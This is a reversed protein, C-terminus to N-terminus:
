RSFGKGPSDKFSWIRAMESQPSPTTPEQKVVPEEIELTQNTILSQREKWVEFPVFTPSNIVKELRQLTTEGAKLRPDGSKSPGYASKSLPTSEFSDLPVRVMPNPNKLFEKIIMTHYLSIYDTRMSVQDPEIRKSEVNELYWQYRLSLSDQTYNHSPFGGGVIIGPSFRLKDWVVRQRPRLLSSAQPGLNSVIDMFTMDSLAKAKVRKLLSYDKTIVHGAFEVAKNSVLTKSTNVVGGISEIEKQYSNFMRSRMVVDDGIVRYSDKPDLRLDHCIKRCVLNNTLGLLNFSPGTGLPQGSKWSLLQGNPALWKGRSISIFHDIAHLYAKGLAHSEWKVRLGKDDLPLGCFHQHVLDLCPLLSLKDSASTLDVGALEEGKGLKDSAWLIGSLQNETCDTPLSNLWRKWEWKLPDLFHQTIRNPNAIWRAKLSVEQICSLHGVPICGYKLIEKPLIKVQFIPPAHESLSAVKIFRQTEIPTTLWSQEYALALKERSIERPRLQVTSEGVPVSIGTLCSYSPSSYSLKPVYRLDSMRTYANFRYNYESRRVEVSDLSDYLKKYQTISPSKQTFATHVSLIALAAQKNKMSFVVRFPGCPSGGKHKFWPPVKTNGSMKTIYWHHLSKLREVTWEVGCSSEWIDITNIISHTQDKPLGAGRITKCLNNKITKDM